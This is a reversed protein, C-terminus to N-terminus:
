PCLRTVTPGPEWRTRTAPPSSGRRSPTNWDSPRGHRTAVPLWGAHRLSEGTEGQRTYTCLPGGTLRACERYLLKSIGWSIVAVRTIELYGRAALVRSTPRGVIAVGLLEIGHWAAISWKHGRPATNHRHHMTVFERATRWSAHTIVVPKTM